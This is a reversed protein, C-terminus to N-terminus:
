SIEGQSKSTIIDVVKAADKPLIDKKKVVNHYILEAQNAFVKAISTEIDGTRSPDTALLLFAKVGMGKRDSPVVLIEHGDETRIFAHPSNFDHLRKLEKNAIKILMKVNMDHSVERETRLNDIDVFRILVSTANASSAANAALSILLDKWYADDKLLSISAKNAFQKLVDIQRNVSGIYKYSDILENKATIAAKRAVDREETHKESIRQHLNATGLGALGFIFIFIEELHAQPIGFYDKSILSPSMVTLVFFVLYVLSILEVKRFWPTQVTYVDTM